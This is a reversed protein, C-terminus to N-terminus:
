RPWRGGLYLLGNLALVVVGLVAYLWSVGPTFLGAWVLVLSAVGCVTRAICGALRCAALFRPTPERVLRVIRARFPWVALWAVALAAVLYLGGDNM